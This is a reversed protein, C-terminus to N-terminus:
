GEKAIVNLQVEARIRTVRVQLVQTPMTETKPPLLHRTEVLDETVEVIEDIAEIEEHVEIEAGTMASQDDVKPKGVKEIWKAYDSRLFSKVRISGSKADSRVM